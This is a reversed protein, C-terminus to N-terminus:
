EIGELQAQIMARYAGNMHILKEQSGSEVLKGNQIVLIRDMEEMWHLRHTAFLVLKNKFLSLMTKKLEYETEIDLHATPEDLLLVPRQCLFARALAVRQEQGGSMQRGGNGICEDLGHPLSSVFRALGSAAIAQNIEEESAEPQYFAVNDRLSASFIYPHQPIYTVQQRWERSSFTIRTGNIFVQGAEADIFGGIFDILTSKGAGSPGIIGIKEFGSFHVNLNKIAAKQAGRYVISSDEITLLSKEHWRGMNHGSVHEPDGPEKMKVYANLKQAAEKGDLTAHYDQGLERVPLFYEPALILVTLAPELMIHGDILRIGLAVAVFAISLMTFFDLAFSSLFALKLTNMTMVRYKDSVRNITQQHRRSIGLYYLTPLGRLSDIFHNSLVRYSAWRDDMKKQAAFGLLIMFLILVPMTVLMIIGSMPDKWFVYLLILVPVIGNAAMKPIFLELYSRTQSVGELALSVLSGTGEKKLAKSGIEFLKEIFAERLDSSTRDAFHYCNSKIVYATFHRALLATFFFLLDSSVSVIQKGSFLGAVTRGLFLAQLIICVGQVFTLLAVFAFLLKAGKYSLLDRDM